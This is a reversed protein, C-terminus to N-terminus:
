RGTCTRRLALYGSDADYLYDYCALARLGTNVFPGHSERIWSVRRPTQPNATDGSTFRYALKGGLLHVTVIADPSLESGGQQGPEAIMMNTLGTDILITGMPYDKTGISIYGPATTWDKSFSAVSKNAIRIPAAELKVFNFGNTEPSTLGFTIGHRSILYGHRMEGHQMAYLNLFPNASASRMGDASGRGFGVGLMHPINGTCRGSNPGGGTCFGRTVALVEVTAEAFVAKNAPDMFRVTAHTWVGELTLGSSVYRLEGASAHPDVNPVESAPVVVGVSGTDITFDHAPGGNISTLMQLPRDLHHFDPSEDFPITISYAPAPYAPRETSEQAHVVVSSLLLGAFAFAILLSQRHFLLLRRDPDYVCGISTRSRLDETFSGAFLTRCAVKGYSATSNAELWACSRSFQELIM